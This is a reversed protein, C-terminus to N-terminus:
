GYKLNLNRARNADVVCIQIRAYDFEGRSIKCAFKM